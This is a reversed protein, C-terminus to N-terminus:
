EELKSSKYIWLFLKNRFWSSYFCLYALLSVNLVVFIFRHNESFKVNSTLLVVLFALAVYSSHLKSMSEHDRPVSPFSGKKLKKLLLERIDKYFAYVVLM